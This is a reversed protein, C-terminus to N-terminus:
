RIRQQLEELRRAQARGPAVLQRAAFWLWQTADYARIQEDLQEQYEAAGSGAYANLLIDRRGRDLDHFGITVALDFLPDNDCAYEWDILKLGGDDIM